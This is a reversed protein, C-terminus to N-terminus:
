SFHSAAKLGLVGVAATDVLMMVPRPLVSSLLGYLSALQSAWAVNQYSLKDWVREALEPLSTVSRRLAELSRTLKKATEGRFGAADLAAAAADRGKFWMVSAILVAAVALAAKQSARLGTAQAAREELPVRLCLEHAQAALKMCDARLAEPVNLCCLRLADQDDPDTADCADVCASFDRLAKQAVGPDELSALTLLRAYARVVQRLKKQAPKM